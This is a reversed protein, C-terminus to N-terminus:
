SSGFLVAHMVRGPLFTFIGAIILGGSYLAIMTRKHKKIDNRRAELIAGCVGALTLLSLLHIPSFPGLLRIDFIFLSSGAVWVMLSCWVYGLTKHPLTGKPAALQISGLLFASMAAVAHSAILWGAELLPAFSM